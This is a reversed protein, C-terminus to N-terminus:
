PLRRGPRRAVRGLARVVQLEFHSGPLCVPFVHVQGSGQTYEGTFPGAITGPAVTVKQPPVPEYFPQQDFSITYDGPILETTLLYGNDSRAIERGTHDAVKLVPVEQFPADPTGLKIAAELGGYQPHLSRTM